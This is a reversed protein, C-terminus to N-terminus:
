LSMSVYKKINEKKVSDGAKELYHLTQPNKQNEFHRIRAYPVGSDGFIVTKHGDADEVRGDAKLAGTLEPALVIARSLIVGAMIEETNAYSKTIDGIWKSINSKFAM